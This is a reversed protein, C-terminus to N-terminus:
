AIRRPLLRKRVSPSNASRTRWRVLVNSRPVPRIWCRASASVVPVITDVVPGVQDFVPGVRQVLPRVEDMFQATKQQMKRSARYIAFIIVAQVVFALAAMGVAATVVIRFTDEPM